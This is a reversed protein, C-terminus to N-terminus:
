VWSETVAWIIDDVFSTALDFCVFRANVTVYLASVRSSTHCAESNLYHM